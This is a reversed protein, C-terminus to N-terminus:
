DKKEIYNKGPLEEILEYAKIFQNEDMYRNNMISNVQDCYQPDAKARYYFKNIKDRYKRILENDNKFWWTFCRCQINIFLLYSVAKEWRNVAPATVNLASVLQEQTMKKTLRKEKIVKNIEMMEM